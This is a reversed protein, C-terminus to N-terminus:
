VEQRDLWGLLLAVARPDHRLRRGGNAIVRLEAAGHADALRVADDVPVVDDETGHILLLPRPSFRRVDVVTDVAAIERAWATADEPARESEFVGMSRCHRAFRAPDRSWDRLDVPAGLAAVGRVRPDAAAVGLALAGGVGTGAIWVGQADGSDAVEDVAFRVDANWGGISFDGHSGGTGRFNFTLVRWGAQAAIRDALEPFTLGSALSGRPPTPFDHCLVLGPAVGSAAPQAWHAALVTGDPHDLNLDV